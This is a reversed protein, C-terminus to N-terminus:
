QNWCAFQLRQYSSEHPRGRGRPNPLSGVTKEQSATSTSQFLCAWTFGVLRVLASLRWRTPPSPSEAWGEADGVSAFGSYQFPLDCWGGKEQDM